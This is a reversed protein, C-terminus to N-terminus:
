SADPYFDKWSDVNQSREQKMYKSDMMLIHKPYQKLYSMIHLVADLHAQQPAALYSSMLSVANAIDIRGMEVTWRLSGILSQYWTTDDTNLRSSSDIEPRYGPPLPTLSTKTPISIHRKELQKHLSNRLIIWAQRTRGHESIEYTHFKAGLYTVPKSYGNKLTYLKQLRQMFETPLHSVCIIDDVYTAVYEYYDFNHTRRARLYVDPDALSSQYGMERLDARLQSQLSAGSTKLGYLARTIQLFKGVHVGFEPGAIIYVRERAPASLYANQINTVLVELDNLAAILLLIRVSDRHVVPSYTNDDVEVLHGGAVYRAKRILDPKIDFILHGTIKKHNAYSALEWPYSEKLQRVPVIDESGDRWRVVVEDKHHDIISDLVM